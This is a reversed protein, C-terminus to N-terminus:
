SAAIRPHAFSATTPSIAPSGPAGAIESVTKKTTEEALEKARGGDESSLLLVM